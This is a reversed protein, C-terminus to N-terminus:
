KRENWMKIAKKETDALPGRCWCAECKYSYSNDNIKCIFGANQGCFPCDKIETMRLRMRDLNKWM